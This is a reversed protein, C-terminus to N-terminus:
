QKIASFIVTNEFCMFSVIYEKNSFDYSFDTKEKKFSNKYKLYFKESLGLMSEQCSNKKGVSYGKAFIGEVLNNSNLSIAYSDFINTAKIPPDIFVKNGNYATKNYPQNFKIGFASDFKPEANVNLALIILSIFLIYKM